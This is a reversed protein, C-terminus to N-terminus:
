TLYGHKVLDLKRLLLYGFHTVCCAHKWNHYPIDRYGQQMSLIFRILTSKRMRWRSVFGLDIFMYLIVGPSQHDPFLRMTFRFDMLAKRFKSSYGFTLDLMQRVKSVSVEGINALVENRIGHRRIAKKKYDLLISSSIISSARKAFLLCQEEDQYTFGGQKQSLEIIVPAEGTQDSIPIVLINRFM